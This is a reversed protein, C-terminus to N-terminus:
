IVSYGLVVFSPLQWMCLTNAWIAKQTRILSISIFQIKNWQTGKKETQWDAYGTSSHYWSISNCKQITAKGKGKASIGARSWECLLRMANVSAACLSKARGRGGNEQSGWIKKMKKNERKRIAMAEPNKKKKPRIINQWGPPQSLISLSILTRKLLPCIHIGIALEHQYIASVM